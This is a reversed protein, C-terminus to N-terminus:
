YQGALSTELLAIEDPTLDFLRYVIADIEREAKEIEVNLKRVEATNKALYSEWEGREKVPIDARFVRKVEDRFGAFDLTWWDELKRSLKKREPPALDLIRHRIASIIAFRQGSSAANSQAINILRNRESKQMTPIPLQEIYQSKLRLRWTGGRLPNSIAFLVFWGLKSNLIASLELSGKGISFVTCDILYGEPMLAFKPGQSFDPFIVGGKLFELQYALQPQQLEFWEQKTARRELEKKFPKLWDRIAPYDDIDIKGKPINILFLGEPEIHWRKINEGRLFPKLLKASAKDQKVLRDRTEQDIIFAENLGTKIGYLPAGYVEGLTKKGIVIKERLRALKDDELQWSGAGLRGRPMATAGAMFAADLDKPLEAGIKLFALTGDKTGGKHLTLIAPYTTVGEFIQRDGFDIVAEIGVNDGLFTRLKEGSGTRFFTSSTIFGLHGGDKLLSVGREFFYAYLDTRDDAVVYRRELYPKIPKILEMRVYPPNGIVVDFGGAAFIPAFAKRWDFPHETFSGDDILSNGVKITAELNQLRHKDRATKLWLALRTIEVSEANLDVGHLNRTVIEDFPDFEVTEGLAVLHTVVRRYERALLDFAAVLFAGSGCAPDVICLGRLSETYDRWFAREADKETERFIPDGNTPAERGHKNLLANFREALTLGITREVLFRTVIDPTYIVGFQKRKSVKPPEQGRSIARLRELDTISQEFIHGLVTVPVDSKYDWRGLAGLDTALPDPIVVADAVSDPAFLGGNYAWIGRGENGVDIEHFLAHFNKWYPEPRFENRATGARELLKDPLLDTREAFAIFLIRDLNKQAVEIASTMPLKPGDAADTLFSILRDRLSKYETYLKDTIDKYASDTERLLTDTAGTLLRAASLILWLKEHESRDDLKTLDFLEYADRGRGFAYLRIESCNSVLVWRAGPTDIAYDWAQQVPSRRGGPPIADLDTTLPGKMEFPAVVENRADRESFHGLAVDASGGRTSHEFDVTYIQEPDYKRYGLLTGLIEDYFRNRIRTENARFRPSRAAEAYKQAVELQDKTPEFNVRKLAEAIVKYNLLPVRLTRGVGSRGPRGGRGGDGLDIGAAAFLDM